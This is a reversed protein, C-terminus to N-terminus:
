GMLSAEEAQIELEGGCARGSWSGGSPAPMGKGVAGDWAGGGDGAGHRWRVEEALAQRHVAGVLTLLRVEEM